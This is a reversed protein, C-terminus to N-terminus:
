SSYLGHRCVFGSVVDFDFDPIGLRADILPCPDDDLMGIICILYDKPPQVVLGDDSDRIEVEALLKSNAVAVDTFVFLRRLKGARRLRGAAGFRM